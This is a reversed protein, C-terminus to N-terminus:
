RVLTARYRARLGDDYSTGQCSQETDQGCRFRVSANALDLEVRTVSGHRFGVTRVGNGRAGLHVPVVSVHGSRLHVVLQAVSGRATGAM